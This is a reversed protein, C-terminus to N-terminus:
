ILTVSETEVGSVGEINKIEEEIKSAGEDPIVLLVKIAKLGFAIPEIKLDKVNFKELIKNKVKEIDTEPSEPMIRLSIAVEGM